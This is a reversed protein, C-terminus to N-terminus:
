RPDTLDTPTLFYRAGVFLNARANTVGSLQSGAMPHGGVFRLKRAQAANVIAGKASAVDTVLADIPALDEILSTVRSIPAALVVLDAGRVEELTSTRNIAGIREAEELVQPSDVGVVEWGSERAALGVSGGILGVGVIGLTRSM